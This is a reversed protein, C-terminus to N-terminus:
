PSGAPWCRRCPLSAPRSSRGWWRRRVIIPGDLVGVFGDFAVLLLLQGLDGCPRRVRVQGVAGVFVEEQIGIRPDVEEVQAVRQVIGLVADLQDVGAEVFELIAHNGLAFAPLPGAGANETSSPSSAWAM